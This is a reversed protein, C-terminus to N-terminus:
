AICGGCGNCDLAYGSARRGQSLETCGKGLLRGTLAGAGPAGGMQGLPNWRARIRDIRSSHSPLFREVM